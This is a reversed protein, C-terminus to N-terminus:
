NPDPSRGPWSLSQSRPPPHFCSRQWGSARHPLPPLPPLGAARSARVAGGPGGPVQTAPTEQKKGESVRSTDESSGAGVMSARLAARPHATPVTAM